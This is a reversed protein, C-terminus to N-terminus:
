QNTRGLVPVLGKNTVLQLVLFPVRFYKKKKSTYLYSDHEDGMVKNACNTQMSPITLKTGSRLMSLTSHDNLLLHLYHYM